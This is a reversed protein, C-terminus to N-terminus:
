VDPWSTFFESLAYFDGPCQVDEETEVVVINGHTRRLAQLHEILDDLCPSRNERDERTEGPAPM